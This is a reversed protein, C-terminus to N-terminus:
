SAGPPPVALVPILARRMIQETVSGLAMRPLGHRAHTAMVVVDARCREIGALIGAVPTDELFLGETRPYIQRAAAVVNALTAESAERLEAYPMVVLPSTEIAVALYAHLLVLSANLRVALALGVDVARQSAEDLSTAVLIRRPSRAIPAIPTM